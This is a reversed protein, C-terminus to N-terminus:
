EDIQKSKITNYFSTAETYDKSEFEIMGNNLILIRDAFNQLHEQFHTIFIVSSNNKNEVLYNMCKTRFNKDGVALAEDIIFLDARVQTLIAFGLKARMGSSYIGLPKDIFEELESFRIIENLNEDIEKKNLRYFAGKFYINERGTLLPNFGSRLAFIAVINGNKIITGEDHKYIGTIIRTLTTKGSGNIGLVGVIENRKINLSINKLPAINNSSRSKISFLLSFINEEGLLSFSKSLSTIELVIDSM